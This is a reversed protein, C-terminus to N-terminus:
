EVTVLEVKEVTDLSRLLGILLQFSIDLDTIDLTLVVNVIHNIPITQNIALINCNKQAIVSLIKSLAGKEDQVVMTLIAKRRSNEEHFSFVADRYKYFTGRSIGVKKVAESIKRVQGTQLLTQAEMVKELVDPLIASSVVYFKSM